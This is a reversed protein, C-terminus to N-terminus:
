PRREQDADQKQHVPPVFFASVLMGCTSILFGGHLSQILDMAQRSKLKRGDRKASM